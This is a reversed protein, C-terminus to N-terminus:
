SFGNAPLAYDLYLIQRLLCVRVKPLTGEWLGKCMAPLSLQGPARENRIGEQGSSYTRCNVPGDWAWQSLCQQALCGGSGARWGGGAGEAESIVPSISSM